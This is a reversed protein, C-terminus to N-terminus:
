VNPTFSCYCHEPGTAQIPGQILENVDIYAALRNAFTQPTDGIIGMIKIENFLLRGEILFPLEKDTFCTGEWRFQFSNGKRELIQLTAEPIDDWISIVSMARPDVAYEYPAEFEVISGTLDTWRRVPFRVTDCVFRPYSDSKKPDVELSWMIDRAEGYHTPSGPQGDILEGFLVASKLAVKRNNLTLVM